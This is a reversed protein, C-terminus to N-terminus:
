SDFAAQVTAQSAFLRSCKAASGCFPLWDWYVASQGRANITVTPGYPYMKQTATAIVTPKSWRGKRWVAAYIATRRTPNSSSGSTSGGGWTVIVTGGAAALESAGAPVLGDPQTFRAQSQSSVTTWRSLSSGSLDASRLRPVGSVVLGRQAGVAYVIPEAPNTCWNTNNSCHNATQLPELPTTPLVQGAPSIWNMRWQWSQSTWFPSQATIHDYGWTVAAWGSAALSLRETDNAPNFTTQDDPALVPIPTSTRLGPLLRALYIQRTSYSQNGSAPPVGQTFLIAADNGAASVQCSPAVNLAEPYEPQAAVLVKRMLKGTQSYIWLYIRAHSGSQSDSVYCRLGLGDALYAPPQYYVNSAVGSSASVHQDLASLATRQVRGTSGVLSVDGRSGQHTYRQWWVRLIDNNTLEAGGNFTGGPSVQIPRSWAALASSTSVIALISAVGLAAFVRKM